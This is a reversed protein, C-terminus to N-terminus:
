GLLLNGRIKNMRVPPPRILGEIPSVIYLVPFINFLVRAIVIAAVAVGGLRFIASVIAVSFFEFARWLM